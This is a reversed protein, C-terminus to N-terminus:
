ESRFRNTDDCVIHHTWEERAVDPTLPGFWYEDTLGALYEVPENNDYRQVHFYGANQWKAGFWVGRETPKNRSWVTKSTAQASLTRAREVMLDVATKQFKWMRGCTSCTWARDSWLVPGDCEYCLQVAM